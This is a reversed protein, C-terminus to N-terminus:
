RKAFATELESGGFMKGCLLGRYKGGTMIDLNIRPYNSYLMQKCDFGHAQCMTSLSYDTFPHVHTYDNWFDHGIKRINPTRIYLHKNPKIVRYLEDLFSDYQVIHEIVHNLMVVDFFDDEYPLANQEVDLVRFDVDRAELRTRYVDGRDIAYYSINPNEYSIAKGDGCGIDMVRIPASVDLALVDLVRRMFLAHRDTQQIKVAQQDLLRRMWGGMGRYLDRSNTKRYEELYNNTEM